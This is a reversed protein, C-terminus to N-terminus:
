CINTNVYIIGNLVIYFLATYISICGLDSDGKCYFGLSHVSRVIRTPCSLERCLLCYATFVENRLCPSNFCLRGFKPEEWWLVVMKSCHTIYPKINIHM